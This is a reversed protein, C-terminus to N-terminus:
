YRCRQFCELHHYYPYYFCPDLLCPVTSFLSFYVNFVFSCCRVTVLNHVHVSCCQLLLPLFCWCVRVSDWLQLYQQKMEAYSAVGADALLKCFPELPNSGALEAIETPTMYAIQRDTAAHGFRRKIGGVHVFAPTYTKRAHAAAQKHATYISLADNGNATFVPMKLKSLWKNAIYGNGRLSICLENDTVIFVTPCRINRHQAYEALNIASLFHANNVSGDGVSVFSVSDKPFLPQFAPAKGRLFQSMGVSIARGVAPCAQSALTSTVLFDYPGGGIACHAGNSVPDLASVTHGRARDLLIDSLPKSARLQRMIQTAVHRYHLAVADKPQIALAAAAMLEEGCPGITYFGQGMIAAARSEVHVLFTTLAATLVSQLEENTIGAATIRTRADAQAAPDVVPIHLFSVNLTSSSIFCCNHVVCSM